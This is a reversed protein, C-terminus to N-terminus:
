YDNLKGTAAKVGRNSARLGCKRVAFFKDVRDPNSICDEKVLTIMGSWSM